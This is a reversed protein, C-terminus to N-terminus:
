PLGEGKVVEAMQMCRVAAEEHCPMSASTKSRLSLAGSRLSLLM